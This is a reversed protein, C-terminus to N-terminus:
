LKNIFSKSEKLTKVNINLEAVEKMVDEYKRRHKIELMVTTLALSGISIFFPIFAMTLAIDLIYARKWIGFGLFNLLLPMLDSNFTSISLSVLLTFFLAVVSITYKTYSIIFFIIITLWSLIMITNLAELPFHNHKVEQGGLFLVYLSIIAVFIYSSKIKKSITEQDLDLKDGLNKGEEHISELIGSYKTKLETKKDQSILSDDIMTLDNNLKEQYYKYKIEVKRMSALFGTRM